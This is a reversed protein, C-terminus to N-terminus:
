SMNQSLAKGATDNLEFSYNNSLLRHILEHKNGSKSLYRAACLNQLQTKTHSKVILDVIVENELSQVPSENITHGADDAADDNGTDLVADTPGAGLGVVEIESVVSTLAKALESNTEINTLDYGEMPSKDQFQQVADDTVGDFQNEQYSIESDSDSESYNEEVSSEDSSTVMNQLAAIEEQLNNINNKTLTIPDRMDKVPSEFTEIKADDRLPTMKDVSNPLPGNSLLFNKISTIDSNLNAYHAMLINSRRFLLIISIAAAAICIFTTILKLHSM